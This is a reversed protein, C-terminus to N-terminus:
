YGKNQRLNTNILLESEPLPYLQDETKWGLKVTGLVADAKGTRKLDLWRHAWEAFFETRREALIANLLPDKGSVTTPDLGARERVANLDSEASNEGALKNQQARAEARILYQEAIRLIMSYEGLPVDNTHDKYKYPVTRPQGNFIIETVWKAYRQDGAEFASKLSPSLAIDKAELFALGESTYNRNLPVMQWIAEHSNMLFVGDLQDMLEYLGTEAIVEGAQTEAESWEGTFLCVRALLATAAFRNPRTREGSTFSYDPLLAEKAALLDEKLLAYVETASMRKARTNIEYDTTRIYPIDGFLQLLYFHCFARLFRAEGTLQQKLAPTVKESKELGELQANALYIFNYGDSWFATSYANTPVLANNYFQMYVPAINFLDLDDASLSGLYGISALNGSAFGTSGVMKAYIGSMAAKATHDREFVTSSVMQNVPPDITIFKKCGVFCALLLFFIKKYHMM